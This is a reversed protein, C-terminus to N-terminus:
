ECWSGLNFRRYLYKFVTPSLASFVIALLIIVAHSTDDLIGLRIGIEAAAIMLTLGGSLLFGTALNKGFSEKKSLLISPLIKAVLAIALLSPLIILTDWNLVAEFNFTIGLHIFFLPVLFGYGIGYLKKELIAGEQFLLSIVAGALFAGIVALAESEIVASVAVFVFIIALSARVGIEHPDDSRFFKRLIEPYYWIAWSGIKYSAYFLFFILIFLGIATLGFLPDGTRLVDMRIAFITIMVMAGIDAIVAAIIVEQGFRTQSFKMERCVSLVVAVSTTSLVLTVYAADIAISTTMELLLSLPYAIVLAGAFLAVGRFLVRRGATELQGFDLELGSLFMLFIFGITALFSVSEGFILLQDGTAEGYIFLILGVSLGLIIEGVVVPVGIRTFLLPTIFALVVIILLSYYEHAM